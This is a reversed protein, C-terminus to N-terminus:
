SPSCTTSGRSCRRRPGSTSTLHLPAPRRLADARRSSRRSTPGGSGTSRSSRTASSSCGARARGDIETWPRTATTRTAGLRAAGRARGPDPRHGPVRRDAPAPLARAAAGPRAAGHEPRAAARPRARAPRPVRARGRGATRRGGRTTCRARACRRRAPDGRRARANVIADRQEGLRRHARPRRQHRALEEPRGTRGSRSRRSRALLLEIREVDDFADRLRDRTSPSSTSGRRAAPRRRRPVRDDGACVADLEALWADITSTRSRRRRRRDPRAPGLQRRPGRRRACTTSGCAPRWCCSCRRSSRPITSCSTSSAHAVAGRVRRAVLDRRAGRHAAASGGRDPVRHPHAARLRAAHLDRGRRARACRRDDDATAARARSARRPRAARGRGERHVHDGRDDADAGAIRVTEASVLAVVRDVLSRPRAPARARRSSCRRTSTPVSRTASRTAPPPGSRVVLETM